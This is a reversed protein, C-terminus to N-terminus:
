AQGRKRNLMKILALRELEETIQYSTGGGYVAGALALLMCGFGTPIPCPVFLRPGIFPWLYAAAFYAGAGGAITWLVHKMM